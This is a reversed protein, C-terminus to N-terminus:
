LSFEKDLVMKTLLALNILRYRGFEMVPLYGKTIWGNLVGIDVGSLDAFRERTMVPVNPLQSLDPLPEM